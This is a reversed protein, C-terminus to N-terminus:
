SAGRMQRRYQRAELVFGTIIFPLLCLFLVLEAHAEGYDNITLRVGYTGGFYAMLFIYVLLLAYLFSFMHGALIVKKELAKLNM